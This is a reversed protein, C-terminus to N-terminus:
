SILKNNLLILYDLWKQLQKKLSDCLSTGQLVHPENATCMNHPPILHSWNHFQSDHLDM